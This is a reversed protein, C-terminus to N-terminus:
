ISLGEGSTTSLGVDAVGYVVPMLELPLGTQATINPATIILREKIGLQDALDFLDYGVDHMAGHYHIKIREDEKHQKVWESFYYFGLDIRKRFSNRDTINIVFWDVPFGNRARAEVRSMPKYLKTNVGHPIVDIPTELGFRSLQQKGFETYAIIQDFTTLKDIYEQKVNEADVPTYLLKVGRYNEMFEGYNESAVWPDNIIMVAEPKLMMMLENMRNLGYYDGHVRATPNYLKAKSQIPHPDGSYNIALVHIDYKDFLHEILNHSVQAFGTECGADALIFLKKKQSVPKQITGKNHNVKGTM